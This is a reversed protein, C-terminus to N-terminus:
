VLCKEIEEKIILAASKESEKPRSKLKETNELLVELHAKLVKALEIGKLQQDLVEVHFNVEKKLNLANYFQHNDTAAPYPILLCPKSVIKLESISSAGARSIIINSWEYAEDMHDIYEVQEYTYKKHKEVNKTKNGKGVQHKISIAKSPELKILELVAENVQTAGLSGCFVLINIKNEDVVQKSYQIKSRVPNGSVITKKNNELGKTEKFNIFIRKAVKSLIKNTVGMVANQEIIYVPIGLLYGALLTPGCVYGGAGVLFKPRKGVLKFFFNFFVLLNLTLNKFLVFPNKTRVPKSDLHLANKEAFLKYDLYRTGSVYKIEYNSELTEGVSLAANIHGGTGGAVLYVLNKM